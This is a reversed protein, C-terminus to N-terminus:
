RGLIKDILHLKKELLVTKDEIKTEKKKSNLIQNHIKPDKLKVQKSALM